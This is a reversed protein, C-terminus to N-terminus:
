HLRVTWTKGDHVGGDEVRVQQLVKGSYVYKIQGGKNGESYTEGTLMTGSYSITRQYYPSPSDKRFARIETLRDGSWTFRVLNDANWERASAMRGQSDYTLSFYHLGDWIFPNFFSNGAVTTDIPGELISLVAPNFQPSDPLVIRPLGLDDVIHPPNPATRVVRLNAFGDPGDFKASSVAQVQPEGGRYAFFFSGKSEPGGLAHYNQAGKEDDFATAIANLRNSDWQFTMHLKYAQVGDIPLQFAGSAPCYYIGEALPRGSFWNPTGPLEVPAPADLISRIRFARDRAELDGRLSNSRDLYRDLRQKAAAQDRFVAATAGSYYLFEEDNPDLALADNAAGRLKTYDGEAQLASLRQEFEARKKALDAVLSRRTSAGIERAAPDSVTRDYRDLLSLADADRGRAALLRAQLILIEPADRNAASAEAIGAEAKAFDNEQLAKEADHLGFKFRQDEPSGATLAHLKVTAAEATSATVRTDEQLKAIHPNDPDRGAAVTLERLADATSQRQALLTGRHAHLRASEELATRRLEILEPFSWQYREFPLYADLLLDWEGAAALSELKLRTSDIFQIRKDVTSALDALAPDSAFARHGLDAYRRILLLGSYPGRNEFTAIGTSIRNQLQDRFEAAAPSDPFSKAFGEMAALQEDLSLFAPARNIFALALRDADAGPIFVFFQEPAILEGTKSKKSQFAEIPLRGQAAAAVIPTKPAFDDPLILDSPKGSEDLHVLRNAADTRIAGSQALDLRPLRKAEDPTLRQTAIPLLRVRRSGSIQFQEVARFRIQGEPSKEGLLGSQAFAAPSLVMALLALYKITFSM